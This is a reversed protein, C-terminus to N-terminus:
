AQKHHSMRQLLRVGKTPSMLLPLLQPQTAAPLVHFIETGKETKSYVKFQELFLSLRTFILFYLFM